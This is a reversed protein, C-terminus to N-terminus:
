KDYPTVELKSIDIDYDLEETLSVERFEYHLGNEVANGDDDIYFGIFGDDFDIQYRYYGMTYIGTVNK